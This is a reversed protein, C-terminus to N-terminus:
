KPAPAPAGGPTGPPPVVNPDGTAPAKKEIGPDVEQPRIVGNSQDLKKSLSEAPTPDPSSDQPANPAASAGNVLALLGLALAFRLIAM